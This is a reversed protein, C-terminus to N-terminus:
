AGKNNCLSNRRSNSFVVMKLSIKVQPLSLLRCTCSRLIQTKYCNGLFKQIAGQINNNNNNNSDNDDDNNIPTFPTTIRLVIAEGVWTM